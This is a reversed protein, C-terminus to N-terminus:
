DHITLNINDIKTPKIHHFIYNNCIKLISDQIFILDSTYEYAKNAHKCFDDFVISKFFSANRKLYPIDIVLRYAKAYDAALYVGNRNYSLFLYGKESFPANVIKYGYFRYELLSAFNKFNLINYKIVFQKKYGIEQFGYDIVLVEM